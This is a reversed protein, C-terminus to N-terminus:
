INPRFQIDAISIDNMVHLVLVEMASFTERVLDVKIENNQRDRRTAPIAHAVLGRIEEVLGVRTQRQDRLWPEFRQGQLELLSRWQPNRSLGNPNPRFHWELLRYGNLWRTELPYGTNQFAALYHLHSRHDPLWGEIIKAAVNFDIPGQRRFQVELDISPADEAGEGLVVMYATSNPGLFEVTATKGATLSSALEIGSIWEPLFQALVADIDRRAEVHLLKRVHRLGDQDGFLLTEVRVAPEGWNREARGLPVGLDRGHVRLWGRDLIIDVFWM